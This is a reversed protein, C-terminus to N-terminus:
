ELFATGRFLEMTGGNRLKNHVRKQKAAESRDIDDLLSMLKKPKTPRGAARLSKGPNERDSCIGDAPLVNM